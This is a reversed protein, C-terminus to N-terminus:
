LRATKIDILMRGLSNPDIAQTSNVLLSSLKRPRLQRPILGIPFTSSITAAAPEAQNVAEASNTEAMEVLSTEVMEVSNTEAVVSNTEAVVSNTEVAVPDTVAANHIPQNIKAVDLISSTTPTIAEALINNLKPLHPLKLTEFPYMPAAM